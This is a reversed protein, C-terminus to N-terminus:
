DVLDSCNMSSFSEFFQLCTSIWDSNQQLFVKLKQVRLRSELGVQEGLRHEQQDEVQAGEDSGDHAVSLHPDKQFRDARAHSRRRRCVQREEQQVAFLRAVSLSFYVVKNAFELNFGAASPSVVETFMKKRIANWEKLIYGVESVTVDELLILSRVISSFELWLIVRLSSSFRAVWGDTSRRCNKLVVYSAPFVGKTIVFIWKYKDIERHKALFFNWNM